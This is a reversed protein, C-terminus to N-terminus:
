YGVAQGDKTPDSAACHFGSELRYVIQAGGFLSTPASEVCRHGRRKLEERVRIGFRKSPTILVVLAM